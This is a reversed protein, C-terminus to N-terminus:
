KKLIAIFMSDAKNNYGVLTHTLIVNLGYNEALKKVQAENEMEFVSCTIYVLYGGVKLNPIANSVINYQLDAYENIKKANFFYLQEPTRAWTGSGTCPVDAVILDFKDEFYTKQTLDILKSKYKKLGAEAFREALNELISERIDTVTLDIENNIDYMMISKGGSAACCDWISLQKSKMFPAIIDGVKQSSFDQIIVEQGVKLLENIKIGNAVSLCNESRLEFRTETEKLKGLVNIKHNPRIRLFLYPQQYFSKKFNEVEISNSLNNLYPFINQEDFNNGLLILKDEIKSEILNNWEPKINELIQSTTNECLFTAMLHKEEISGSKIALGVRYFNYVLGAIQKRDKSGFKKSTNFFKKLYISLPTAGDFNSVITTATNLYSYFRSM